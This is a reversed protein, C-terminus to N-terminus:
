DIKQVLVRIKGADVLESILAALNVQGEGVARVPVHSSVRRDGRKGHPVSADHVQGIAVVRGCSGSEAGQRRIVQGTFATNEPDICVDFVILGVFDDDALSGPRMLNLYHGGARARIAFCHIGENDLLM